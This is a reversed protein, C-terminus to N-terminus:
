YIPPISSLVTDVLISWAGPQADKGVTQGDGILGANGVNQVVGEPLVSPTTGPPTFEGTLPSQPAPITGSRILANDIVTVCSNSAVGYKPADPANPNHSELDQQLKQEQQPSVKLTIVESSRLNKQADLYKTESAGWDKSGTKSTYQTGYSYVRGNIAIALHGFLNSNTQNGVILQTEKGDPDIAKLPNNQTYAYRNWSQPREPHGRHSDVSLFRGLNPDYYRAHMYDLYEANDANIGGLFDRWHGAFRMADMHPDGWNIQEQCTHTQTRGFPDCDHESISRPRSTGSEETTVMRVSGLHDLHYHRRGGYRYDATYGWEETEGGMLSSEGYFYDSEWTWAGMGTGVGLGSGKYERLIRGEFDRITWRSLTDPPLNVTGIREDDADYILQQNNTSSQVRTVM